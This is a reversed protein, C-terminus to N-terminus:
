NAQDINTETDTEQIRSAEVVPCIVKRLRYEFYDPDIKRNLIGLALPIIGSDLNNVFDIFFKAGPTEDFEFRLGDKAPYVKIRRMNATELPRITLIFVPVEDENFTFRGIASIKYPEGHFEVVSKKADTLGVPISYIDDGERFSFLLDEGDHAIDIRSLGKAFSNQMGQVIFPMFSLSSARMMDCSFSGILSPLFVEMSKQSFPTKRVHRERLRLNQEAKKLSYRKLFDYKIRQASPRFENNLFYKKLIKFYNSSQFSENNGFNSCIIIGTDPLGLLNQGFMGNMLFSNTDRGVWIQYGYDFYDSTSATSSHKKIMTKIWASSILQQGQWNGGNMILYGLKAMDEIRLYLGMGGQEVGEPSVQWIYDTIGLPEFIRPGMYECVTKGTLHHIIYALMYSNMSNYDFKSNAKFKYGANFFDEFWNESCVVGAENFSVGSRMSLLDKVTIDIKHSSFGHSPKKRGFIDFVSADIDLLGDDVLLGIGLGTVTKTLSYEIHWDSMSYPGFCAESIVKGDKLIMMLHPDLTPDEDIEKLFSQIYSSSIGCSEPTVRPFPYKIPSGEPLRPKKHVVPVVPETAHSPDVVQTMLKVIKTQLRIDM